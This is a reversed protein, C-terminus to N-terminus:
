LDPEVTEYFLHTIARHHGYVGSLSNASLLVRDHWRIHKKLSVYMSHASLMVRVHM